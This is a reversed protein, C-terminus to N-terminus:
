NNLSFWYSLGEFVLTPCHEVKLPLNQNLVLGDIADSVAEHGGGSVFVRRIGQAALYEVVEKIYATVMSQAGFSVAAKTNKGLVSGLVEDDHSASWAIGGTSGLLSQQMLQNGPVIHGGLHLGNADVVDITIATGADIVVFSEGETKDNDNDEADANAHVREFAAIMALWRDVGLTQPTKYSNRLTVDNQKAKSEAAVALNYSAESQAFEPVLGLAKECLGSFWDKRAQAAVSTVVIRQLPYDVFRELQQIWEGEKFDEGDVFDNSWAGAQAEEFIRLSDRGKDSASLDEVLLYKCRSNGQDILLYM